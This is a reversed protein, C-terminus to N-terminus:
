NAEPAPANAAAKKADRNIKWQRAFFWVMLSVYAYVIISFYIAAWICNWDHVSTGNSVFSLILRVGIPLGAAFVATTLFLRAGGVYETKRFMLYLGVGILTFGAILKSLIYTGLDMSDKYFANNNFSLFFPVVIEAIVGILTLIGYTIMKTKRSM